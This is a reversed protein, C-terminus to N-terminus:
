PCCAYEGTETCLCGNFYHPHMEICSGIEFSQVIVTGNVQGSGDSVLAAYPALISGQVATGSVSVSLADPFNWILQNCFDDLSVEGSGCTVGDPLTTSGNVFGANEGIVNIIVTSTVPVDISFGNSSLMDAGSISFINMDPDTGTFVTPVGVTTTGNTSYEALRESYAALTGELYEFDVPPPPDSWIGGCQPTGFIFEGGVWIRGKIGGSVALDGGVVLVPTDADCEALQAGVGYGSLTANGGVWMRGETDCGSAEANGFVLLNVAEEGSGLVDPVCTPICPVDLTGGTGLDITGGTGLDITGGTGLDLTGGTGLDLTGGSAVDLTGGTGVDLTGGTGVDFTRGGEDPNTINGSSGAQSSGALSPINGAVNSVGASSLMGASSPAGSAGSSGASGGSSVQGGTEEGGSESGGTQEIGGIGQYGGGTNETNSVTSCSILLLSILSIKRLM